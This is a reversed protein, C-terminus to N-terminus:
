PSDKGHRRTSHVTGLTVRYADNPYAYVQSPLTIERQGSRRRRHPHCQSLHVGFSLGIWLTFRGQQSPTGNREAPAVGGRVGRRILLRRLIKGVPSKPISRVFVYARPRKFGPLGSAKCFADLDGADVPARRAVFATVKQGLREDPLGAVAVEAVDPHLSLVSEIEVPMINEGGSIMM